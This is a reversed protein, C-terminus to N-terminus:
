SMTALLYLVECAQAVEDLSVWEDPTHAQAIDGPGFVVAPIGAAALTSADTGYPVGVLQPSVGVAQLAQRLRQLLEQAGGPALGEKVLWPPESILPFDLGEEQRLFAELQRPAEEASEGPLLRRDLDIVCEDPVTNVSLGGAIRGVSLTPPGLLPDTRTQQLRAAFREIGLLVRAMRYIANVGQEPCSSHCARGTTRLRWRVAGKHCTVLRLSTPEAVLAFDARLEAEVLKSVGTFTYEEDVTCALVVNLALPSQQRVLRALAALMAALGGKVDCAGRGYLRGSAIHAGFPDITMHDVPVTDQHAEWLVTPRDALPPVPWRAILNDRQPAVPQRVCPVGLDRCFQEVYATVRYELCDAGPPFRGMPNVSPLRVLDALIRTTETM